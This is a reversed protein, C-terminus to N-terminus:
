KTQCLALQVAEIPVCHSREIGVNILKNPGQTKEGGPNSSIPGGPVPFVRSALAMAPSASTGNKKTDPDSNSSINTPTPADLILFSNPQHEMERRGGDREKRWREGEEM